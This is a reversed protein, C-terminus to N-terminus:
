KYTSRVIKMATMSIVEVKVELLQYSLLRTTIEIAM